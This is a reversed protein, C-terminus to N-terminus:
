RARAMAENLDEHAFASERRTIEEPTAGFGAARRRWASAARGAEGLIRKAEDLSLGYYEATALARDASATGDYEDIYTQRIRPGVEAPTPNLDYVPSLRWGRGGEYLFSRPQSRTAEPPRAGRGPAAPCGCDM